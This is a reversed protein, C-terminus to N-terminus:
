ITDFHQDNPLHSQEAFIYKQDNTTFSYRDNRVIHLCFSIFNTKCNQRECSDNYMILHTASSNDVWIYELICKFSGRSAIREHWVHIYGVNTKCM